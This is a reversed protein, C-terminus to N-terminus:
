VKKGTGRVIGEVRKSPDFYREALKRMGDPTEPREEAGVFASLLKVAEELQGALRAASLADDASEPMARILSFDTLGPAMPKM